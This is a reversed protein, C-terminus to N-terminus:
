NRKAQIEKTVLFISIVFLSLNIFLLNSGSRLSGFTTAYIFIFYSALILNGIIIYLFGNKINKKLLYIIGCILFLIFSIAILYGVMMYYAIYPKRFYSTEEPSNAQWVALYNYFWIVIFIIYAVFPLLFKFPKSHIFM